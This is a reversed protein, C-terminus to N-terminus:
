RATSEMRGGFVQGLIAALVFIPIYRMDIHALFRALIILPIPLHIYLFWRFSYKKERNRFYGFPLNILISFLAFMSVLLLKSNFLMNFMVQHTFSLDFTDDGGTNEIFNGCSAPM